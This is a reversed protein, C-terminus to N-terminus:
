PLYALRAALEALEAAGPVGRQALMAARARVDQASTSWTLEYGYGKTVTALDAVNTAMALSDSLPAEPDAALVPVSTGRPEGTGPLKWLVKATGIRTGARVGPALTVEYLASAHHGAGLEGADASLDGFSEDDMGRNEYGVLRYSTVLEPDFVVQTRADDAVPTLLGTLEGGYLEEAQEYTDVYRYFGDGQDALQEMLHDNYNGMGYGVTALHIGNRGEEAITATIGDPGTIGVNAVGDSCLIVVNIGGPRYARRAQEYGRRLGDGLNTSGRPTLAGVAAMIINRDEVNTPPVILEVQDDFGVVSVTDDPRLSRTLLELSSKVLGLRNGQGMSGSRDVVLVLNVSPRGEAATERAAVGVRVVQTGPESGPVVGSETRVALAAETPAADGYSFANIWEEARVSESPPRVGQAVLAQAVRYSGNDIDLAFTSLPDGATDVPGNVGEDVFTNDRTPDPVPQGYPSGPEEAYGSQGGDLGAGAGGGQDYSGYGPDPAVADPDQNADGGCATLAMASVALAVSLVRIRQHHPHPTM